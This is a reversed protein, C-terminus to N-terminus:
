PRAKGGGTRGRFVGVLFLFALVSLLAGGAHLTERSAGWPSAVLGIAIGLTSQLHISGWLVSFTPALERKRLFHTLTLLEPAETAIPALLLAVWFPTLLLVEPLHDIGDLFLHSGIGMLGAGAALFLGDTWRWPASPDPTKEEAEEMSGLGWLYLGCLGAALLLRIWFPHGTLAMAGGLALILLPIERFLTRGQPPALFLSLPILFLSLFLPSGFLAGTGAEIRTTPARPTLFAILPLVLEPLSLSLNALIRLGRNRNEFFRAVTSELSHTFLSSGGVVLAFGIILLGMPSAFVTM